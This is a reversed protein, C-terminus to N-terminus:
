RCLRGGRPPRPYFHWYNWIGVVRACTARRASPTSLFAYDEQITTAKTHRGGRPPRPYFDAPFTIVVRVRGTARRASPTSLFTRKKLSVRRGETARRASPTSLFSPSSVNMLGHKQRGGRPPRPYFNGQRQHIRRNRGDGEERLAHISVIHRVGSYPAIRTARRASPTSLFM